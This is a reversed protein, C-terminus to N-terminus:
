SFKLGGMALSMSSFKTMLRVGSVSCLPAKDTGSTSESRKLHKNRLQLPIHPQSMATSYAILAGIDTAAPCPSRHGSVQDGAPSAKDARMQGLRQDRVTVRDPHQIIEEAPPGLVQGRADLQHPGVHRPLFCDAVRQLADIATKMEGRDGRDFGAALIPQATMGYVQAACDGNKVFDALGLAAGPAANWDNIRGRRRDVAVGALDRYGLLGRRARDIGVADVLEAALHMRRDAAPNVVQGHDTQPKEIDIARPLIGVRRIGPDHRDEAPPYELSGRDLDM